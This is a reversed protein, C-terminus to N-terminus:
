PGTRPKGFAERLAACTKEMEYGRSAKVLYLSDPAERATLAGILEDQTEFCHVEADPRVALVGGAMADAWPGLFYYAAFRSEGAARGIDKHLAEAYSGLENVGGLVAYAKRPKGGEGEDAALREALAFAAKMSEPSANYCDDLLLSGNGLPILEQRGSTLKLSALAELARPLSGETLLVAAVGFLVNSVQQLAPKDLHFPPLDLCEGSPLLARLSADLSVPGTKVDYAEFLTGPPLAKFRCPSPCAAAKQRLAELREPGASGAFAEDEALVTRFRAAIGGSSVFYTPIEAAYREALKLLYPDEAQLVLAGGPRLGSILEAKAEAIALRNGLREIHSTGINTIMVLDPGTTRAIQSLEGRRDMGCEIVAAETDRPMDFLTYPVGFVNNLNKKTQHVKFSAGLMAAVVDRTSTKGVSGTIAALIPNVAERYQRALRGLAESTDAVLLVPCEPSLKEAIEREHLLLAAAGNRVATGAYLHGDTKEGRLAAFLCNEGIVRSDTSVEELSPTEKLGEPLLLEADLLGALETLTRTRDLKM